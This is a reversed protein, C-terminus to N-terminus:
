NGVYSVKSTMVGRRPRRVGLLVIWEKSVTATNDNQNVTNYYSGCMLYTILDKLNKKLLLQYQLLNFYDSTPFQLVWIYYILIITHLFNFYDYIILLQGLCCPRMLSLAVLLWYPLPLAALCIAINFIYVSMYFHKWLERTM